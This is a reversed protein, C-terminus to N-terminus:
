PARDPQMGFLRCFETEFRAPCDDLYDWMVVTGQIGAIDIRQEDLMLRLLELTSMTDHGYEEALAVLDLDDTVLRIGLTMATALCQVDFLSCGLKLEEVASRLFPVKEGIAAKEEARLILQGTRRERRHEDKDAWSFRSRLRPQYYYEHGTGGLIRIQYRDSTGFPV